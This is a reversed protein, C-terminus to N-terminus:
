LLDVGAAGALAGGFIGGVAAVGLQTQLAVSAGLAVAVPVAAAAALGGVLGLAGATCILIATIARVTRCFSKVSQGAGLHNRFLQGSRAAAEM